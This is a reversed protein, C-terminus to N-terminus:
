CSLSRHYAVALHSEGVFTMSELPRSFCRRLLFLTARVPPYVFVTHADGATAVNCNLSVIHDAFLDSASSLIAKSKSALNRIHIPVDPIGPELLHKMLIINTAKDVTSFEHSGQHNLFACSNVMVGRHLGM